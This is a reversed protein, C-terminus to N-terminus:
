GVVGERSELCEDIMWMHRYILKWEGEDPVCDIVRQKCANDLGVVAVRYDEDCTAVNIAADHGLLGIFYTYSNDGTKILGCREKDIIDDTLMFCEGQCGSVFM